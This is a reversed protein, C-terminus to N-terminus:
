EIVINVECLVKFIDEFLDYTMLEWDYTFTLEGILVKGNNFYVTAEGSGADLACNCTVTNEGCKHLTVEWGVIHLNYNRMSEKSNFYDVLMKNYEHKVVLM